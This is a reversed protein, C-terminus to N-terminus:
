GTPHRLLTRLANRTYEPDSSRANAHCAASALMVAREALQVDGCYTAFADPAVAWFKQADDRKHGDEWTFRTDVAVVIGPALKLPRRKRNLHNSPAKLCVVVTM